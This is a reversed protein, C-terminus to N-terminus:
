VRDVVTIVRGTERHHEVCKEKLWYFLPFVLICIEFIVTLGILVVLNAFLGLFYSRVGFKFNFPQDEEFISIAYKGSFHCGINFVILTWFYYWKYKKNKLKPVWQVCYGYKGQWGPEGHMVLALDYNALWAAGFIFASFILGGFLVIVINSNGYREDVVIGLMSFILLLLAAFHYTFYWITKCWSGEEPVVRQRIIKTSGNDHEPCTWTRWGNTQYEHIFCKEHAYCGDKCIQILETGPGKTLSKVKIQYGKKKCFICKHVPKESSTSLSGSFSLTISSNACSACSSSSM